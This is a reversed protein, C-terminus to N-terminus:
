APTYPRVRHLAKSSQKFSAVPRRLRELVDSPLIDYANRFANKASWLMFSLKKLRSTKQFFLIVGAFALLFFCYGAFGLIPSNYKAKLVRYRNRVYFFMKWNTAHDWDQKVSFRTAPHYHVSNIVTYTPINNKRMIRYLYETEDGWLFLRNDPLGVRDILQRSLLTGNFPHAVGEVMNETADSHVKYNKTDWVFSAKDTKDLVACNLLALDGSNGAYLIKELADAAPYGDDDMCWIWHYGKSYAWKMGSNFGGASGTNGQTIVEVDAQAALVQATADTSGNNVVLITDPRRTQNRLADICEMLLDKRNYTVVVAIVKEM